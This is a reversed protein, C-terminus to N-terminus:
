GSLLFDLFLMKTYKIDIKKLVLAEKLVLGKQTKRERHCGNGMANIIRPHLFFLM